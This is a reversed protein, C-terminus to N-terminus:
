WGEKDKMQGIQMVDGADQLRSQAGCEIHM